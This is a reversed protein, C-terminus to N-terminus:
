YWLTTYQINISIQYMPDPKEKNKRLCTNEIWFSEINWLSHSFIQGLLFSKFNDKDECYQESQCHFMRFFM